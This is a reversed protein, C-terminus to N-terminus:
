SSWWINIFFTLLLLLLNIAFIKNYLFIFFSVYWRKKNWGSNESSWLCRHLAHFQSLFIELCCLINVAIKDPLEHFFDNDVSVTSGTLYDIWASLSLSILLALVIRGWRSSMSCFIDYLVVVVFVVHTFSYAIHCFSISLDILLLIINKYLILIIPILIWIISSISIKICLSIVFHFITIIRM